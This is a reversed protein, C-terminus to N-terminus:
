LKAFDPKTKTMVAMAAKVVDKSQLMASAWLAAYELSEKVAHDRSYLLNKKTGYVAIPSKAAIQAATDLAADVMEERSAFVHSFFGARQAEDCSVKRHVPITATAVATFM